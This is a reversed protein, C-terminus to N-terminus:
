LPPSASRHAARYERPQMGVARRFARAFYKEDPFGSQWAVRYVPIESRRLLQKARDVRLDRVYLSFAKGTMKKFCESFHSKSLSSVELVEALDLEDAFHKNIYSVANQIGLATRASYRDTGLRQSISATMDALWKEWAAWTSLGRVLEYYRGPSDGIIQCWECYVPLFFHELEPKSPSLSRLDAVLRSVSEGDGVWEASTFRRELEKAQQGTLKEETNRDLSLVIELPRRDAPSHYFLALDVEQRVASRLQGFTMGCDGRLRIVLASGRKAAGDVIRGLMAEDCATHCVVLTIDEDLRIAKAVDPLTSYAASGLLGDPSALVVLRSCDNEPGTSVGLARMMKEEAVRKGIRGLTTDVNEREIQAKTIYDIVGLRLVKQITEFEQHFTLVVIMVEPYAVRVRSVFATGSLGPMSLDTILLDVPHRALFELAETGHRAEGVVTMGHAEWPMIAVIGRRVIKEDDVVLVRTM